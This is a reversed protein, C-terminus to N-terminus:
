EPFYDGKAVHLLKLVLSHNEPVGSVLRCSPYWYSGVILRSFSCMLRKKNYARNPTIHQAIM